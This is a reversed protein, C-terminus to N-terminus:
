DKRPMLKLQEGLSSFRFPKQLFNAGPPIQAEPLGEAYGSMYIVHIGPRLENVQKALDPGCLGPMVIDTLLVDIQGPHSRALELADYSSHSELVNQGTARLYEAIAARLSAEDDALLVTIEGSRTEAAIEKPSFQQPVAKERHLPFFLQFSTGVEPQTEVHIAGGFQHVIGYVTSLGLGTGKGLPKTTFFPEFAHSRTREDMGCGTDAVELVVWGSAGDSTPMQSVGKPLSSANRTSITLKGGCVMADRANIALNAVVQELQAANAEIWSQSAHHQFTLEIDSGLLRPLIFECDTLVEHLDTPKVELVQKRSFALLQKTIVAAKETTRLIQDLHPAAQSNVPLSRALLEASSSLVMLMNNFDHAVGGALRGLVEMKQSQRFEAELHARQGELQAHKVNQRYNDFLVGTARSMIELSRLENGTYGGPRNAVAILGVTESGKFIPVGLLSHMVPHGAPVGKARPDASPHNSVMTKGKFIIEGLLNDRHSLEFFDSEAFQRMKAEFLERNMVKDWVIGDHALIRLVPGDLVVGLFGHESKTQQLVFSLLQKSAGSWNGTELFTNLAQTVTALTSSKEDLERALKACDERRKFPNWM